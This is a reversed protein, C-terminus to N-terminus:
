YNDDITLQTTGDPKIVDLIEIIDYTIKTKSSNVNYSYTTKLKVRLSDGSQIDIERAHYKKLWNIDEVKMERTKGDMICDWKSAGLLDIKKPKIIETTDNVEVKEGLESLIKGKNIKIGAKLIANGVRSKYEYAEKKPLKNTEQILEDVTTFILHPSLNNAIIGVKMGIVNIEKNIKNAVEEIQEKSDITTSNSLKALLWYKAKLLLIGILTKLEPEKLLGDPIGNLIQVVKTKLSGYGVSELRYEVKISPHIHLLIHKDFDHLLSYFTGVARFPLFVDKSEQFLYDLEFGSPYEQENPLLLLSKSV